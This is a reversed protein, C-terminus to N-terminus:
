WIRGGNQIAEYVIRGSVSRYKNDDITHEAITKCTIVPIRSGTKNGKRCVVNNQKTKALEGKLAKKATLSIHPKGHKDQLQTVSAKHNYSSNSACNALLVTASMVIIINKM